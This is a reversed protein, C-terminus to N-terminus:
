SGDGFTANELCLADRLRKALLLDQASDVELEQGPRDGGDDAFATFTLAHQEFDEGAQDLRALAINM